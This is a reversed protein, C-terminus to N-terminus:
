TINEYEKEDLYYITTIKRFYKNLTSIKRQSNSIISITIFSVIM